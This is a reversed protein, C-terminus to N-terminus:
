MLCIINHALYMGPLGHSRLSLYEGRPPTDPKYVAASPLHHFLREGLRSRVDDGKRTRGVTQVVFSRTVCSIICTEFVHFCGIMSACSFRRRAPYM